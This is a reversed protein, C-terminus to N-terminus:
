PSSSPRCIGMEVLKRFEKKAAKLKAATLRRPREAVPTGKTNIHHRVKVKDTKKWQTSGTVEPFEGLIKSFKEAPNVTSIKVPKSPKVVGTTFAGVSPDLLRKNALDVLLKYHKILDAGIIPTEVDAICFNWALARIGLHLTKFENGYTNITSGNAAYLKFNTPQVRNKNTIPLVSIEAGTDILFRKTNTQDFVYLRNSKLGETGTEDVSPSDIGGVEALRLTQRAERCM